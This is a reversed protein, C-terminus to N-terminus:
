EQFKRKLLKVLIDSYITQSEVVEFKEDIYNSLFDYNKILSRPPLVIWCYKSSGPITDFISDVHEGNEIMWKSTLVPPKSYRIPPSIPFIVNVGKYHYSLPLVHIDRFVFIPQNFNERSEIYSGLEIFDNMKVTPTYKSYLVFGYSLILISLSIVLLVKRFSAIIASIIVVMLPLYLVTLYRPPIYEAGYKFHIVLYFLSISFLIMLIHKNRYLLNKYKQQTTVIGIIILLYLVGRIIWRQIPYLYVTQNLEPDYYLDRLPFILQECEIALWNLTDVISQSNVAESAYYELHSRVFYFLSIFVLMPILMDIVFHRLSQWNRTFVLVFFFAALLLLLFYHTLLAAVALFIFILRSTKLPTSSLYTKNFQYLLFAAVFIVMAYARIETAAWITYPNLLFIVNIYASNSESVYQESAKKIYFTSGLIFLISLLRAFFISGDIYRWIKLLVFYLPVQAEFNVSQEITYWVDKSTTHLSYVEDQYVNLRYSLIISVILFIGAALGLIIKKKSHM